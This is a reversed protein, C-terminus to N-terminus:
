IAEESKTTKCGRIQLYKSEDNQITVSINHLLDYIEGGYSGLNESYKERNILSFAQNVIPIDNEKKYKGIVCAFDFRIKLLDIIQKDILSLEERFDDLTTKKNQM